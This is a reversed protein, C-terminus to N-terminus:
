HGAEIHARLPLAAFAWLTPEPLEDDQASSGAASGTGAAASADRDAPTLDDDALGLIVDLEALDVYAHRHLRERVANAYHERQATTRKLHETDCAHGLEHHWTWVIDSADAALTILIGGQRHGGAFTFTAYPDCRGAIHGGLTPTSRVVLARGARTAHAAVAGIHPLAPLQPDVFIPGAGPVVTTTATGPPHPTTFPLAAYAAWFLWTGVQAAGRDTHAAVATQTGNLGAGTAAIALLAHEARLPPWVVAGAYDELSTPEVLTDLLGPWNVRDLPNM